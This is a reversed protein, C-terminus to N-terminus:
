RAARCAWLARRVAAEDLEGILVVESRRPRDGWAELYRLGTRAGAREVFAQRDDGAVHLFGKVRVCRDGLGDIMALVREGLLPADDVFAVAVLQGHRSHDHHDHGAASRRTVDRRALLWDALALGGAEDPPFGARETNPALEDLRAHTARLAAATAVDLKALLVRDATEAQARAEERASLAAAGTEADVVCAVGVCAVRDRVEARRALGDLIAAPEAIGTTELVVHECGSRKVVDAIGDWLDNKTDVKCCVCGGALELVDGGRRLILQTDISIRGLENVLVAIRRGHRAALMRNLATTKGAGLWGTLITFPTKAV